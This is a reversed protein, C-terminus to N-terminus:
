PVGRAAREAQWFHRRQHAAIVRLAAYANYKMRANFPSTILMANLPRTSHSDIWRLLADQSMAFSAVTSAKPAAADPIFAPITRSRFRGPPELFKALLWAGFGMRYRAPLTPADHADHAADDAADFLELYVDSTMTLHAICEAASWGGSKPRRTWADDSTKAALAAIGAQAARLEARIGDLQGAVSM